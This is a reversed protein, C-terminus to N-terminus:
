VLANGDRIGSYVCIEFGNGIEERINEAHSEGTVSHRFGSEHQKLRKLLTGGAQGVYMVKLPECNDSCRVWMYVLGTTEKFECPINGKPVRLWKIEDEYIKGCCTMGLGAIQNKLDTNVGM